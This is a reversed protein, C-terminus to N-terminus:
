EDDFIIDDKIINFFNLIEENADIDGCTKGILWEPYYQPGGPWIHGGGQMEYFLVKSDNDGNLYEESRVIVSDNPDNDPLYEVIPTTDCNNNSIWFDVTENFSIVNGYTKNFIVIEGGDYPVLPDDTGAIIFVPISTKPSCMAILDESLSAVVAAIGAIKETKECAMRYSMRGGNSIGCFFVRNPDLDLEDITNDILTTLFGVDDISINENQWSVNKRGDNWHKDYGDPYIVIFGYQDSLRNFTKKTLYNEMGEATGGGGHLVFILSGECGNEFGPPIHIRYSREIGDFMITRVQTNKDDRRFKICGSLLVSSILLIIIFFTLFLRNKNM